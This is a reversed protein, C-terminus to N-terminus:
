ENMGHAAPIQENLSALSPPVTRGLRPFSASILGILALALLVPLALGTVTLPWGYKVAFLATSVQNTVLRLVDNAFGM